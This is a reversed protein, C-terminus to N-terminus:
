PNFSNSNHNASTFDVINDDNNLSPEDGYYQWLSRYTESYNDRNEIANYM